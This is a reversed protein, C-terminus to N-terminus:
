QGKMIQLTLPDKEAGFFRDLVQQFVPHTDPLSAFLTMSSRLKLDDPSGFIKSVDNNQQDLLTRCIDILRTGLVPHKLFGEAESVNQIAYYKSTESSGLGRIQPFIYWMWHTVKRGRRIEALATAYDHRQADIFRELGTATKM